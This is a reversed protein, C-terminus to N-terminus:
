ISQQWSIRVAKMSVLTGLGGTINTDTFPFLEAYEESHDEESSTRQVRPAYKVFANITAKYLTDLSVAAKYM